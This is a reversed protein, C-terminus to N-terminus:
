GALASVWPLPLARTELLASLANRQSRSHVNMVFSVASERKTALMTRLTELTVLKKRRKRRRMMTM